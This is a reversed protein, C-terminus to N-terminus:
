RRGPNTLWRWFLVHSPTREGADAAQAIMRQAYRVEWRRQYAALDLEMRPVTMACAVAGAIYAPREMPNIGHDDCWRGAMGKIKQLLAPTRELMMAKECVLARLGAPCAFHTPAAQAREQTVEVCTTPGAFGEPEFPPPGAISYNVVRYVFWVFSAALVMNWCRMIKPLRLQLQTYMAHAAPTKGSTKLCVASFFGMVSSAMEGTTEWGYIHAVAITPRTLAFTLNLVDWTWQKTMEWLGVPRTLEVMTNVWGPFCKGAYWIAATVCFSRKWHPANRRTVPSRWPIYWHLALNDDPVEPLNPANNNILHLNFGQQQGGNPGRNVAAGQAAQNGNPAQPGGQPVQANAIPIGNNVGVGFHLPPAPPRM